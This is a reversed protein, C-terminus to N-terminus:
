VASLYVHNLRQVSDSSNSQKTTPTPQNGQSLNQKNTAKELDTDKWGTEEPEAESAEEIVFRARNQYRVDEPTCVPVLFLMVAAM